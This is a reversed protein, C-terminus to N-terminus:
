HWSIHWANKNTKLYRLRKTNQMKCKAPPLTSGFYERKQTDGLFSASPPRQHILRLLTVPFAAPEGLKCRIVLGQWVGVELSAVPFSLTIPLPPPTICSTVSAAHTALHKGCQYDGGFVFRRYAIDSLFCFLNLASLRALFLSEFSIKLLSMCSMAFCQRNM